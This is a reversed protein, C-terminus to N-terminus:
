SPDRALMEGLLTHVHDIADGSDQADFRRTLKMEPSLAFQPGGNVMAILREPPIPCDQQLHLTVRSGSAECGLVKLNKLRPRLAMARIFAAAPAPPPGFRDEMEAALDQIEEDSEASAFRKYLSLRVGVDAVYEEPLYHEVTLTLETDVGRQVPTGRLEAVAEELMHVFMDFGVAAVSGSQEAGLFDGAGRQEMDLSAIQFGSGLQTHRELAEIRTRAEDSMESPNKTILYCYARQQSRGVRGRLQYLQALGLADARDILITNARPIDLGNEVIATACLIDYRGDVFDAMLQELAAEKLRGHVVGIRADPVMDQLRAAREYLGDIRNHIFYVQGGRSLERSIAERLVHEDWRTVFTRVARRDVPPTSILSLERLGGIAMQLTRPIPTASLTLVDVETRLRKLREKHAVGFRQEEDIIALGLQKFHVDKSLLRHTGIVIDCTGEKLERITQQQAKRSVFRSLGALRVPYDQLRAEFTRLHQQALVTTPCLVAVQRGALAARFAARLAVETKGFGVDGCIVRDMPREHELDQLVEEIARAQDETEEFPFTAEFEAFLADPKDYVPRSRAARAAYLSLLEDALQKVAEAVKTKKRAFTQGGLRDLKPTGGDGGSFKEIQNLRTVPVYLKDGGHYEVVLVEVRLPQMGQMAEYKSLPVQQQMLGLYRGIGHEAHVVYDNPALQRLDELFARKNDRRKRSRSRKRPQQGFIEQETILALAQRPLICGDQLPGVVVQPQSARDAALLQTAFDEVKPLVVGYSRLLHTLRDGQTQTRAILLVRLGEETWREIRQVLPALPKQVEKQNRQSKLDAVLDQHDLASVRMLSNPAVSSFRACASAEETVDPAGDIALRHVVALPGTALRAELTELPLYHDALPYCPQGDEVRAIRDRSARHLEDDLAQGAATPDLLVYQTREPLYDLLSEMGEYFAPAYADIGAFHRGSGVDQVLQKRRSTPMNIADCLASVKREARALEEAGVMTDRVPPLDVRQASDLTRQDEPDFRRITSVADFDLEIRYPYREHSPFVDLLAGRLAFTGPDEVVPVRMYGAAALRTAAQEMDLEMDQEVVLSRARVISQPPILRLLAHAPAIVAATPLGQALQFLASLRDMAARRDSAVAVFPSTDAAPYLLIASQQGTCFFRLNAQLRQATETDPTLICLPARGLEIVQALTNALACLPLPGSDVRPRKVIAHALDRTSVHDADLSHALSFRAPM